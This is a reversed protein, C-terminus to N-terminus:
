GVLCDKVSICGFLMVMNSKCSVRLVTFLLDKHLNRASLIGGFAFLFARILTVITNVGVMGLYVLLFFKTREWEDEELPIQLRPGFPYLNDRIIQINEIDSYDDRIDGFGSFNDRSMSGNVTWKSLWADSLNKSVQMLIIFVAIFFSLCYGTAKLYSNYVGIRVTGSQREEESNKAPEASDFLFKSDDLNAQNEDKFDVEKSNLIEQPNGHKVIHGDVDLCLIEDARALYETHHTAILVLKGRNKLLKEICNEWEFKAIKADLSAFPDDLLYIDADQFTLNDLETFLGLLCVQYLARALALRARQGGSLTTGEDGILYEDKNPM